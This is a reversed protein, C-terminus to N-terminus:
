TQAHESIVARYMASIKHAQAEVSFDSECRIRGASGMADREEDNSLLREIASALLNPSHPPVLLGTSGDVIIEPIGGVDTGIVPVGRAMAELSVLGLPESHSPVVAIDAATQWIEVDERFGVFKVPTGTTAALLQMEERYLGKRELDDGVLVLEAKSHWHKLSTWAALLDAIGKRVVIQGAFVLLLRDSTLGLRRRAEQKRAANPAEPLPVGDHVVCCPENGLSMSSGCINRRLSHSVFIHREAGFKNLWSVARHDYIWRHHCVRPVDLARAADSAMQHSPLDNSHVIDPSLDGLMEILARRALWYRFWHFKDTLEVPLYRCSIKAAELRNRTVGRTGLIVTVQHGIKLLASATRELAVEAGAHFPARSVFCIHM